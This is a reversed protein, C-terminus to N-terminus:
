SKDDDASKPATGGASPFLPCVVLTCDDIYVEPEESELLLGQDMAIAPEDCVDEDIEIQVGTMTQEKLLHRRDAGRQGAIAKVAGSPPLEAISM